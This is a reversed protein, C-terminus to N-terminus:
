IDREMRKQVKELIKKAILIFEKTKGVTVVDHSSNEGLIVIKENRVFEMSSIKHKKALDFLEFIKKMEDQDIKYVKSCNNIFTEFNTQPNKYLNIRKYLYEYQLISNILKQIANKTELLINLLMKKDQILPFTVYIMHDLTRISKSADQLNELFKEM